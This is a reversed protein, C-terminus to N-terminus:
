FSCGTLVINYRHYMKKILQYHRHM